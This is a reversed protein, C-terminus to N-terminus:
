PSSEPEAALRSGLRARLEAVLNPVPGAPLSVPESRLASVYIGLVVSFDILSAELSTPHVAREDDLWDFVADTLAAQAQVDQEFYDHTGSVVCRNAQTLEWSWMTWHAIGLSGFVGVRKHLHVAGDTTAPASPGCTLLARVGNAYSIAAVCADPSYHDRDGRLGTVGAVQGFVSVPRSQGLFGRILQLLHTGQYALNMRASADVFRVEGISGDHVARRLSVLRPHFHLQHNVCVRTRSARLFAELEAYDEGQSAIPKEVIAAGVGHESLRILVDRRANPRTVVHVVDPRERLLMQELDTYRAPVGFREAFATVRDQHPDCVAALSGRRLQQYAAAHGAARRGCGVLACKYSM